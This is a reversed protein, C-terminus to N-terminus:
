RRRRRWIFFLTGAGLATVAVADMVRAIDWARFATAEGAAGFPVRVFAPLHGLTTTGRRDAWTLVPLGGGGPVADSPLVVELSVNRSRGDAPTTPLWIPCRYAGAEPQSVRYRLAYTANSATTKMTLSRTRGFAFPSGAVTASGELGDMEVAAGALIQLRHEIDTGAPADITFTAAVRCAIPSDFVVAVVSGRLVAGSVESSALLIGLSACM